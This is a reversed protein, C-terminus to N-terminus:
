LTTLFDEVIDRLHLPSLDLKNCLAALMEVKERDDSVDGIEDIIVATGTQAADAFVAIGYSFRREDDLVYTAEVIGYTIDNM